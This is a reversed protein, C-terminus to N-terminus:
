MYCDFSNGTALFRLTLALRTSAPIAQRMNTDQKHILPQVKRLLYDFDSATMRVFNKYCEEDEIRLQPLLDKDVNYVERTLRKDIWPRVWYKRKCKNRKEEEDEDFLLLLCAAAEVQDSDYESDSNEVFDSFQSALM